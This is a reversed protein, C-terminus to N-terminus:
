LVGALRLGATGFTYSNNYGRTDRMDSVLLCVGTLACQFRKLRERRERGKIKGVSALQDVERLVEDHLRILANKLTEQSRLAEADALDLYLLTNLSEATDSRKFGTRTVVKCEHDLARSLLTRDTVTSAQPLRRDIAAVLEQEDLCALLDVLARQFRIRRADRMNAGGGKLVDKCARGYRYINKEFRSLAPLEGAFRM